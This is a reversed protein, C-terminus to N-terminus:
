LYQGTTGATFGTGPLNNLGGNDVIGGSDYVYKGGSNTGGGPFSVSSCSAIGCRNASAFNSFALTGVLTIAAGSVSTRSNIIALLHGPAVGTISYSNTSGGLATTLFQILAGAGNTSLHPSACAGFEIECYQVKVKATVSIGSGSTAASLKFGRVRVTAAMDSPFAWCDASTTAIPVNAPTAIDGIFSVIGHGVPVNTAIFSNTYSGTPAAVNVTVDHGNLDLRCIADWAAQRTQFATASTLGPNADSGADKSVYYTRDATLTERDVRFAQTNIDAKTAATGANSNHQVRYKTATVGTALEIGYDHANATSLDNHEIQLEAFSAAADIYIGRSAANVSTGYEEIDNGKIRVKGYTGGLFEIGRRRANCLVNGKVVWPFNGMTGGSSLDFTILAGTTATSDGSGNIKTGLISVDNIAAGSAPQFLFASQDVQDFMGGQAVCNSLHGGSAPQSILVHDVETSNVGMFHMGDLEGAGTHKVVARGLGIAQAAYRGGQLFLGVSKGTTPAVDFVSVGTGAAYRSFCHRADVVGETIRVASTKVGTFRARDLVTSGTRYVWVPYSVSSASDVDLTGNKIIPDATLHADSGLKWQGARKFTLMSSNLDVTMYDAVWAHVVNDFYYQGGAAYAISRIGLAVAAAWCDTFATTDVTADGDGVVGGAGPGFDNVLLRPGRDIGLQYELTALSVGGYVGGASIGFVDTPSLSSYTPYDDPFLKDTM